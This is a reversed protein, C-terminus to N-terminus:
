WHPQTKSSVGPKPPQVQVERCSKVFPVSPPVGSAPSTRSEFPLKYPADNLPPKCPHPEIPHPTMQSIVGYLGANRLTALNRKPFVSRLPPGPTPNHHRDSFARRPANQFFGGIWPNSTLHAAGYSVITSFAMLACLKYNWSGYFVYGAITLWVYRQNRTRLRWYVFYVVPLFFFLFRLSNFLM